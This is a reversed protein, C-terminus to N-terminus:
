DWSVACIYRQGTHGISVFGGLPDVSCPGAVVWEDSRFDYEFDETFNTPTGASAGRSSQTSGLFLTAGGAHTNITLSNGISLGASATNLPTADSRILRYIGVGADISNDAPWVVRINATTGTPLYYAYIGSGYNAQTSPVLELNTMANGDLLLTPEPASAANFYCGFAAIVWRNPDEAGVSVNTSLTNGFSSGGMDYFDVFSLETAIGGTGIVKHWLM